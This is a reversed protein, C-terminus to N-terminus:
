SKRGKFLGGLRHVKSAAKVDADSASTVIGSHNRGGTKVAQTTKAAAVNMRVAEVVARAFEDSQTRSTETQEMGRETATALADLAVGGVSVLLQEPIPVKLSQGSPMRIAIGCDRLLNSVVNIGIQYFDLDRACVPLGCYEAPLEVLGSTGVGPERSEDNTENTANTGVGPERSENQKEEHTKM